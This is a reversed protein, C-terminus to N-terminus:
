GSTSLHRTAMEVRLRDYARQRLMHVAGRSRGLAQAVEDIGRGQLDYLRVVEAYDRPLDGLSALVFARLEGRAAAGSPSTVSALLEDLRGGDDGLRPPVEAREQRALGRLADTLNHDAIARLWAAFAAPSEGVLGGVHLCAELYTVQMVDDDDLQPRVGSPLRARVHARVGPGHEELLMGLAELDGARARGIRDDHM